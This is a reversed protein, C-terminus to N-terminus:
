AYWRTDSLGHLSCCIYTKPLEWRKSRSSFLIYIASVTGFYTIAEPLCEAADSGCLNLSHCGGPSFNGSFEARRDKGSGKYKGTMNSANDYGHARCDNLPIAHEELTDMILQAIEKGRM